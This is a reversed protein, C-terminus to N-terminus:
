DRHSRGAASWSATQCWPVREGRYYDLDAPKLTLKRKGAFLTVSQGQPIVAAM